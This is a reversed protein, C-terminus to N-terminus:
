KIKVGHLILLAELNEIHESKLKVTEKLVKINRELQEILKASLMIIVGYEKDM